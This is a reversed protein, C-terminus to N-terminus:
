GDLYALRLAPTLIPGTTEVSAMALPGAFMGRAERGARGAHCERHTKRTGLLAGAAQRAM